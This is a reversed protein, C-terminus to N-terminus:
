KISEGFFTKGDSGKFCAFQKHESSYTIDNIAHYAPGACNLAYEVGEKQRILMKPSGCIEIYMDRGASSFYTLTM